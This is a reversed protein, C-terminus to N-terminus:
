SRPSAAVRIVTEQGPGHPRTLPAARRAVVDLQAHARLEPVGPVLVDHDHGAPVVPVSCITVDRSPRRAPCSCRAAGVAEPDKRLGGHLGRGIRTVIWAGAPVRIPQVLSGISTSPPVATQLPRAAPAADRQSTRNPAGIGSLQHRFRVRGSVQPAQRSRCFRGPQLRPAEISPEAPRERNRRAPPAAGPWSSRPWASWWFRWRSSRPRPSTGARSPRGAVTGRSWRPPRPPRPTPWPPARWTTVLAMAGVVVAAMRKM